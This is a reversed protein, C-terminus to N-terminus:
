FEITWTIQLAFDTGTELPVTKFTHRAFITANDDFLLGCENVLSNIVDCDFLAVFTVKPNTVATDVTTSSIAVIGMQAYLGADSDVPAVPSFPSTALNAGGKGIAMKTVGKTSQKALLKVLESRGVKVILNHDTYDGIVEGDSKRLLCVNVTGKGRLGDTFKSSFKNKLSDGVKKILSDKFRPM